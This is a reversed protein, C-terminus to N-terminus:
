RLMEEATRANAALAAALAELALANEETSGVSIRLATDYGVPERFGRALVGRNAMAAIVPEVPRGTDASVFNAFSRWAVFGLARFGETLQDRGAETGSIIRAVHAEDELAALAMAISIASIEFIPRVAGIAEVVDEGSCVGYGVRAGAMAFAKSFTRSVIWPGKREAELVSVADPGGAARSFEAYAEDVCLLVDGPVGRALAALSPADLMGGTNGNPTCAFVLGTDPSIAALMAAIDNAGDPAVPIAIGRAGAIATSLRYRPFSPRPFVCSRADDLAIMCAYHLILDSGAALVIRAPAVGSRAALADVLPGGEGPPYRNVGAAAEAAAAIARQSPGWPSENLHLRARPAVGSPAGGARLPPALGALRCSLWAPRGTQEPKSGDM